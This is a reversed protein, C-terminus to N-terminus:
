TENSLRLCENDPLLSTYLRAFAYEGQVRYGVRFDTVNALVTSYDTTDSYVQSGDEWVTAGSPGIRLVRTHPNGDSTLPNDSTASNNQKIRIQKNGLIGIVNDPDETVDEELRWRWETAEGSINDRVVLTCGGSVDPEGTGNVGTTQSPENITVASGGTFIPYDPATTGAFTGVWHFITSGANGSNIGTPAFYSRITNGSASTTVTYAVRLVKGGNPGSDTLKELVRGDGSGIYTESAFDFNARIDSIFNNDTQDRAHLGFNDFDGREVEAVITISTNNIVQDQLSSENSVGSSNGSNTLKTADPYASSLVTPHSVTIESGVTWNGSDLTCADLLENTYSPHHHYGLPNGDPDYTLAPEDTALERILGDAGRAWAKSGRSFIVRAPLSAYKKYDLDIRSLKTSIISM